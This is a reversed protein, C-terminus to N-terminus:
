LGAPLADLGLHAVLQEELDEVTGLVLLLGADLVLAVAVDELELGVALAEAADGRLGGVLDGDLAGAVGLALVDEVVVLVALALDDAADGQAELAAVDDDVQAAGLRHERHALLGRALAVAGAVAHLSEHEVDQAL